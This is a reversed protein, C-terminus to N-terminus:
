GFVTWLGTTGFSGPAKGEQRWNKLYKVQAKVMHAVFAYVSLQIM